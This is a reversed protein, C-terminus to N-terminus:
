KVEEKIEQWNLGLQKGSFSDKVPYNLSRKIRASNHPHTM